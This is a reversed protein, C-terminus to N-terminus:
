REIKSIKTDPWYNRRLLIFSTKLIKKDIGFEKVLQLEIEDFYKQSSIIVKDFHLKELDKPSYIFIDNMKTNWICKNNDIIAIIEISDEFAWKYSIIEKRSKRNGM